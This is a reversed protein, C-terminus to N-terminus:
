SDASKQLERARARAVLEVGPRPEPGFVPGDDLTFNMLEYVGPTIQPWPTLSGGNPDGTKVFNAAYQNFV